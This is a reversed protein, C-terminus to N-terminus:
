TDWLLNPQLSVQTLNAYRMATFICNRWIPSDWSLIEILFDLKMTILTSNPAHPCTKFCALLSPHWSTSAWIWSKVDLCVKFCELMWALLPSVTATWICSNANLYTSSPVQNLTIFIIIKLAWGRLHFCDQLPTKTLHLYLTKNYSSHFVNLCTRLFGLLCFILAITGSISESLKLLFTVHYKLSAVLPKTIYKPMLTTSTGADRKHTSDKANLM